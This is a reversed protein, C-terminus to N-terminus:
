KDLLLISSSSLSMSGVLLPPRERGTHSPAKQLAFDLRAAATSPSRWPTTSSSACASSFRNSTM